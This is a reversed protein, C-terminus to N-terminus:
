NIDLGIQVDLGSLIKPETTVWKFTYITDPNVQTGKPVRKVLIKDEPTLKITTPNGAKIYKFNASLVVKNVPIIVPSDRLISTNNKKDELYINLLEKANVSKDIIEFLSRKETVADIIEFVIGKTLTIRKYNPTRYNVNLVPMIRPGLIIERGEAQDNIKREINELNDDTLDVILEFNEGYPFSTISNKYFDLDSINTKKKADKRSSKYMNDRGLATDPYYKITTGEIIDKTYGWIVEGGEYESNNEPDGASIVPYYRNRGYYFAIKGLEMMQFQKDNDPTWNRLRNSRTLSYLAKTLMSVLVGKEFQTRAFFTNINVDNGNDDIFKVIRYGFPHADSRPLIRSEKSYASNSLSSREIWHDSLKIEYLQDIFSEFLKIYKM